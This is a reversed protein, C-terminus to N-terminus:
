AWHDTAMEAHSRGEYAEDPGVVMRATDEIESILPWGSYAAPRAETWGRDDLLILHRGNQLAAMHVATLSTTLLQGSEAEMANALDVLTLLRDVTVTGIM